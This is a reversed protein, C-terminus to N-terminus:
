KRRPRPSARDAELLRVTSGMLAEVELEDALQNLRLPDIGTRLGGTPHAQVVFRPEPKGHSHDKLGRRLAQNLTEKFSQRSRQMADRLMQEVDPDITVTTRTM